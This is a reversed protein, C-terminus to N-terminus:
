RRFQILYVEKMYGIKVQLYFLEKNPKATFTRKLSYTRCMGSSAYEESKWSKKLKGGVYLHPWLWDPSNRQTSFCLKFKSVYVSNKTHKSFYGVARVATKRKSLDTSVDTAGIVTASGVRVTAYSKSAAVAAPASALPVLLALAGLLLALRSLLSSRHPM